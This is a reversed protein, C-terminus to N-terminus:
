HRRIKNKYLKELLPKFDREKQTKIKWNVVECNVVISSDRNLLRYYCDRSLRLKLSNFNTEEDKIIKQLKLVDPFFVSEVENKYFITPAYFESVVNYVDSPTLSKYETCDNNLGVVIFVGAIYDCPKARSTKLEEYNYVCRNPPCKNVKGKLDCLLAVTVSSTGVESFLKFTRPIEYDLSQVDKCNLVGRVYQFLNSTVIKIEKPIKNPEVLVATYSFVM